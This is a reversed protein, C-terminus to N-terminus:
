SLPVFEQIRQMRSVPLSVSDWGLPFQWRRRCCTSLTNLLGQFDGQAQKRRIKVQWLHVSIFSHVTMARSHIAAHVMSVLVVMLMMMMVM